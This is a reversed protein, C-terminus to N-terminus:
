FLPQQLSLWAELMLTGNRIGAIVPITRHIQEEITTELSGPRTSEGGVDIITAGEQEMLLVRKVATDVSSTWLGGDSFSDPTVNLIGMVLTKNFYLLRGRPLPLVRVPSTKSADSLTTELQGLVEALTGNIGPVSRHRGVLDILPILVFPRESIRPHPITLEVTNVIVQEEPQGDSGILACSLIDLDVPRPGNRVMAFNRGLQGEVRKISQLLLLPELDTEIEVAGNLFSTQNAFYMPETEYLYSTRVLRVTDNMSLLQLAKHINQYRDGLNSGVALYVRYKFSAVSPTTKTSGMCRHRSITHLRKASPFHIKRNWPPPTPRRRLPEVFASSLRWMGVIMLMAVNLLTATMFIQAGLYLNSVFVDSVGEAPVPVADVRGSHFVVPLRNWFQFFVLQGVSIRVGSIHNLTVPSLWKVIPCQM